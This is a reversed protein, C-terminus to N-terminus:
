KRPGKWEVFLRSKVGDKKVDKAAVRRATITWRGVGGPVPRARSVILRRAEYASEFGEFEKVCVCVKAGHDDIVGQLLDYYMKNSRHGREPPPPLDAPYPKTAPMTAGKLDITHHTASIFALASPHSGTARCKAAVRGSARSRPRRPRTCGPRTM